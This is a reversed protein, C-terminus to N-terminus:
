YKKVEDITIGYASLGPALYQVDTDVSYNKALRVMKIGTRHTPHQTFYSETLGAPARYAWYVKNSYHDIAIGTIFRAADDVPANDIRVPNSGSLNAVWFGVKDAPATASFYLKNNIPDIVFSRISFDTLIAGSSPATGAGSINATLIDNATFRYIGKGTGGKAWFYVFDYYFVGTTMAVDNLGNGFYGLRNAKVLYYPVATQADASGKWEFAGPAAGNLPHRYLFASFDSWYLYNGDVYGSYFGNSANTSRNHILETVSNDAMNVRVISGNGPKSQLQSLDTSVETGANFLYLQNNRAQITFPHAGTTYSTTKSEELGRLFIRQRYVKGDSGAILLSRAQQDLVRFNTQVNYVSDGVQVKLKVTETVNRQRFFVKVNALTSKGATLSESVANESFEWNYTVAYGYPNYALVSFTVDEYYVVSDPKYYISPITDYITIKKTILYNDNSDARLTIDYVGPKKYIYTPNKLISTGGDGYTWNWSEGTETLNTFTVVQGARPMEPTFSFDPEIPTSCSFILLILAVFFVIRPLLQRM